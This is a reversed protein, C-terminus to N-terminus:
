RVPESRVLHPAQGTTWEGFFAERAPNQKYTYFMFAIFLGFGLGIIVFILSFIILSASTCFEQRYPAIEKLRHSCFSSGGRKLPIWETKFAIPDNFGSPDIPAKVPGFLRKLNDAIEGFVGRSM